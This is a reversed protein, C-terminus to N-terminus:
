LADNSQNARVRDGAMMSWEKIVYLEDISYLHEESKLLPFIAELETQSQADRFHLWLKPLTYTPKM